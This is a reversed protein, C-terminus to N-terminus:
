WLPAPLRETLSSLIADSQPSPLVYDVRDSAGGRYWYCHYPEPNEYDRPLPVFEAVTRRDDRHTLYFVAYNSAESMVFRSVYVPRQILAITQIGKSRGQTLIAQFAPSNRPILYAEDVFLLPRDKLRWIAWLLEEIAADDVQARPQVIYLGRAGRTPRWSPKVFQAARTRHALRKFLDERKFDIAVICRDLRSISLLYFAFTTKGSGTKGIVLTRSNNEPKLPNIAM